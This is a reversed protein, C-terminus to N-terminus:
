MVPYVRFASDDVRVSVSGKGKAKQRERYGIVLEGREISIKDVGVYKSYLCFWYLSIQFYIRVM